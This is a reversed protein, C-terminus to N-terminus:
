FSIKKFLTFFKGRQRRLWRVSQHRTEVPLTDRPRRRRRGPLRLRRGGLPRENLALEPVNENQQKTRTNAHIAAKGTSVCLIFAPWTAVQKKYPPWGQRGGGQQRPPGGGRRPPASGRVYRLFLRPVAALGLSFAPVLFAFQTFLACLAVVRQQKSMPIQKEIVHPHAVCACLNRERERRSALLSFLQVRLLWKGKRNSKIGAATVIRTKIWM